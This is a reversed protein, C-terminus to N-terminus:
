EQMVVLVKLSDEADLALEYAERARSLPFRHTVVDEARIVGRAILVMARRTDSPGCSYSPILSVERFYIDHPRISLQASPPTPSFLLVRGGAAALSLGSRIAQPRPPAVFVVDAGEGDTLQEVASELDQEGMDVVAHAGLQRAKDLRFPVRDVGIVSRAGEALALKVALCGMVGLGLVLVREDPVLGVRNFAKVVCALPEVLTGDEFSLAESLKLTDGSLVDAPVRLFEAMGGPDIHSRKWADCHVHRGAQCNRCAGCPAHHHVFVRDGSTFSQVDRGVAVVEGAPEHGMVRPLKRRLYWAMLEGSCVGCAGVRVLAEGSGPTPVPRTELEYRGPEPCVLVRM